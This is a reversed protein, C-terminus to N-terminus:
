DARDRAPIPELGLEQRVHAFKVPDALRRDIMMTRLEMLGPETFFLRPLRSTTDLRMLGREVLSKAAPPLKPEKAKPGGRWVKLQFGEAVTPFTSFFRDLQSRVYAREIPTFDASVSREFANMLRSM